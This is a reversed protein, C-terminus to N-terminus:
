ASRGLMRVLTRDRDIFHHKLAAAAHLGVAFLLFKGGVEHIVHAPEAIAALETQAPITLGLFAIDRGNYLAMLMGSAPLAVSLAVLCIHLVARARVSWRSTGPIPTTTAQSSSWAIRWLALILAAVGLQKHVGILWAKEPGRAMDELVLGTALLVIILAAISWHNVISMWGFANRTDKMAM